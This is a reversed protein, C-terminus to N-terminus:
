ADGQQKPLVFRPYSGFVKFLGTLARIRELTDAIRPDSRHGNIDVLFIYEGLTAKSPRSEIKTMNIQQDALVQLVRVLIGPRDEAFGFCISTKDDDTPPHDHRALVIFRTMNDTRDQINRALITAGTLDAARLTSIAAAPRPDALAEAPAASNSLSAVTAVGPLCREIFRRCQGLSQQHGYLVQVDGLRVGPRAVLCQRIPIVTEGAIRLNTEHILLDLTTTVSGELVNEIPLIGESAAGTEIATVVAPMSTLSLFEAQPSGYALAAEESFTGPPGLFAITQM